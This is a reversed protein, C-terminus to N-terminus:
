PQVQQILQLPVVGSYTGASVVASIPFSAYLPIRQTAISHGQVRVVVPSSTRSLKDSRKSDSFFTVFLPKDVRKGTELQHPTVGTDVVLLNVTRSRDSTNVCEVDVHGEGQQLGSELPSLDPFSLALSTIQCVVPDHGQAAQTPASAFTLLVNIALALRGAHGLGFWTKECM